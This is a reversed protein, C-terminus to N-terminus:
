ARVRNELRIERIKKPKPVGLSSLIHKQAPTIDTRQAIKGEPADIEVIRIRELQIRIRPWTDGVQNEAARVLLLALWRLLIHARIRDTTRLTAREACSKRSM